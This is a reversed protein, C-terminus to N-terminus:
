KLLPDRPLGLIREAITNRTIESTGGAITMARYSLYMRTLGPAQGVVAASGALEMGLEGLRQGSEAVLLKTVNGEPGPESGAIARSIRRLNLLRLTHQEALVEGVRRVYQAATEAPVSDLLEVLDDPGFDTSGGSGGGISIRENGLTARAVLWGKNVEGIVDSDPVFVDDFFVENFHATGTLGRLPNVTVGPAKMDIAMMTVGAHKPADPDTRVTAMGWQCQDALSTWIKQGNVRWGGDVRKASTRVAAADSGANPESFLQCWMIEGRLVPEVWRQRQEETGAQAITLTVWGTIGLDPREVDAFEEEIVLQELVDAGRGWPKPWHPVLYGSDVLFDRRKDAPLSRLTAVAERAERRYKEAEPPLTFKSGHAQGTRQAEVVDLLPDAGEGLVAALTRARRLYLHADHEWTFGIGGHLQINTQANFVQTRIAHAAAVAAAFWASDLDAARAADWVAATTQEANVLMNAAHHKVAQFTGIPRGFQERVKAYEVAMRLTAWSVGVAEASALVRFVTRARRAAGRLVRDEAVAVGRLAVSGISRTTDLGDLRTVTVGDAAADLVVVDAGALVVLVQADPAGLVAPCDGTVVGDSDVAVSGSVALAGVTSGDALGPLLQARVSDPACRDIVVAAAVSPLFPGPCLEHGQAELVVALEALGFGSGGYQESVALGTWGQETAAQWVQPPHSSGQELTARAAARSDLRNLRGFVANALDIHEETIALASKTM